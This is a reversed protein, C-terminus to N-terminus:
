LYYPGPMIRGAQLGHPPVMLVRYGDSHKLVRFGYNPMGELCLAATKDGGAKFASTESKYTTTSQTTM